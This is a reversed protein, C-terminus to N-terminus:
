IIGELYNSICKEYEDYGVLAAIAHKANPIIHMEKKKSTCANYLESCMPTPVFTDSDGHIFLIPKSIKSVSTIAAASNLDFKGRIKAALWALPYCKSLPTFMNGATNRIIAEPSTYGCDEIYCVVQPDSELLDTTMMVTAAGMSVGSLIIKTDAPMIGKVYEVWSVADKRENIGFSIIYGESQCHAREEIMLLNLNHSMCYRFTGYGDRLYSGHYGHFFIVIPRDPFLDFLHGNLKLGDFSKIFVQKHSKSSMENVSRFMEDSYEGYYSKDEKQVELPNFRNNIRHVFTYEYIGITIILILIFIVFVTILLATM